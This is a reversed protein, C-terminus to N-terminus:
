LRGMILRTIAVIAAPQEEPVYHDAEPVVTRDLDPRLQVTREFAAESVLTSESGRVLVTPVSVQAVTDELPERLGEATSALAASNALPEMGKATRQYGHRARRQIADDPLKRYRGRLYTRIQDDSAFTQNGGAVRTSLADFVADEIFPTFDVAIVAAVLDPRLVAAVLANRAGLSHGVLVAKGENLREILAIADEAYDIAGYGSSMPDPADSLGHGRQSVALAHGDVSLATTIPDWIAANATIGHLLIVPRGEGAERVQLRLRDLQMFNERIESM